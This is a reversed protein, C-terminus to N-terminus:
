LFFGEILAKKVVRINKISEIYNLFTDIILFFSRIAEISM